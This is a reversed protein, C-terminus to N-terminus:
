YWFIACICIPEKSKDLTYICVGIDQCLKASVHVDLKYNIILICYSNESVKMDYRNKKERLEHKYTWKTGVGAKM